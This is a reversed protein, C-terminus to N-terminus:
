QLVRTMVVVEQSSSTIFGQRALIRFTTKDAFPVRIKVREARTNEALYKCVAATFRWLLDGAEPDAGFLDYEVWAGVMPQTLDVRVAGVPKDGESVVLFGRRPEALDEDLTAAWRSLLARDAPSARRIEM